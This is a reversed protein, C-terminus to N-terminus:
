KVFNIKRLKEVRIMLLNYQKTPKKTMKANTPTQMPSQKQVDTLKKYTNKVAMKILGNTESMENM